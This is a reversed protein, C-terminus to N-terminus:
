DTRISSTGRSSTKEALAKLAVDLVRDTFDSKQEENTLLLPGDLMSIMALWAEREKDKVAVEFGADPVIGVDPSGEPVDHKDITKGSPRQFTGTGLILAGLGDGLPYLVQIRGKGFTREGIFTARGHDQLAGALIEGSSATGGNILVVMPVDTVGGPKADHPVTETRSAITLIRGKDLFLDASGIAAKALGGVCDRLDLVISKMGHAKLEGLAREVEGVTDAALRSIRIYGVGNKADLMYDPKGAADRRAGRVSPISITRRTIKFPLPETAGKRRVVVDAVSGPAGRMVGMTKDIPWGAVDHGDIRVLLDDRQLGADRAPSDLLLYRVRPVKAEDDLRINVGLGGFQAANDAEFGAREAPNLYRSYPDLDKLLLNLAREVLQERTMPKMFEREVITLAEDITRDVQARSLDDGFAAAAILLCLAAASFTKM